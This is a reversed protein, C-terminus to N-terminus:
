LLKSNPVIYSKSFNADFHGLKGFKYKKDRFIGFNCPRRHKGNHRLVLKSNSFLYCKQLFCTLIVWTVLNQTLPRVMIKKGPPPLPIM